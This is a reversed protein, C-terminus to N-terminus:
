SPAAKGGGGGWDLALLEDLDDSAEIAFERYKVRSAGLTALKVDKLIPTMLWAEIRETRHGTRRVSNLIAGCLVLIAVLALGAAVALCPAFWRRTM